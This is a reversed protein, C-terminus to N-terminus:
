REFPIGAALHQKDAVWRRALWGHEARPELFIIRDEEDFGAQEIVPEGGALRESGGPGGVEIRREDGAESDGGAAAGDRQM